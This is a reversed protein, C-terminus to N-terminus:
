ITSYMRWLTQYVDVMQVVNNCCGTRRTNADDGGDRSHISIAPAQFLCDTRAHLMRTKTYCSRPGIRMMMMIGEALENWGDAHMHMCVMVTHTCHTAICRLKEGNRAMCSRQAACAGDRSGGVSIRRVASLTHLIYALVSERTERERTNPTQTYM